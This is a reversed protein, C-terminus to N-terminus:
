FRKFNRHWYSCYDVFNPDQNIDHASEPDRESGFGQNQKRKSLSEKYESVFRYLEWLTQMDLSEIDLKIEYDQLLSLEPSSKKIIQVVTDIKDYPLSQIEEYLRRKEDLTLDRSDDVPAEEEERPKEITTTTVTEPKVPKGKRLLNDFQIEILICKEEFFRLLSEAMIHVDHGVPCYLMANNFTLRVDEAFDLASTYLNQGLKARVTRLDMPKKVITLYDDIGLETGDLPHSFVWGYEHKMLETLLNNLEHSMLKQMSNEVEPKSISNLSVKLKPHKAATMPNTQKHDSSM